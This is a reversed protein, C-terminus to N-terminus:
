FIEEEDVIDILKSFGFFIILIGIWCIVKSFFLVVKVM